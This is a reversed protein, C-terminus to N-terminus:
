ALQAIHDLLQRMDDVGQAAPNQMQQRHIWRGRSKRTKPAESTRVGHLIKRRDVRRQHLEVLAGGADILKPLQSIFRVQAARPHEQIHHGIVGTPSGSQPLLM